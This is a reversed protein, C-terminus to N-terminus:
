GLSSIGPRMSGNRIRSLPWGKEHWLMVDGTIDPGLPCVLGHSDWEAVRGRGLSANCLLRSQKPSRPIRLRLFCPIHQLVEPKAGGFAYIARAIDARLQRTGSVVPLPPWVPDWPLSKWEGGPSKLSPEHRVVTVVTMLVLIAAGIGTLDTAQTSSLPQERRRLWSKSRRKPKSNM